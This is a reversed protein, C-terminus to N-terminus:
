SPKPTATAATPKPVVSLQSDLPSPAQNGAICIWTIFIVVPNVVDHHLTRRNRNTSSWSYPCAELQKPHFLKLSSEAFHCVIMKWAFSRFRTRQEVQNGGGNNRRKACTSTDLRKGIAKAPNWRCAANRLRWSLFFMHQQLDKFTSLHTLLEWRKFMRLDLLPKLRFRTRLRCCCCTLHSQLFFESPGPAKSSKEGNQHSEDM